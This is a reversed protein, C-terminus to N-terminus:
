LNPFLSVLFLAVSLLLLAIYFIWAGRDMNYATLSAPNSKMFAVIAQYTDPIEQVPLNTLLEHTIVRRRLVMFASGIVLLKFLFPFDLFFLVFFVFGFSILAPITQILTYRAVWHIKMDSRLIVGVLENYLIM